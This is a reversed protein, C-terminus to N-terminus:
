RVNTDMVLTGKQSFINPLFRTNTTVSSTFLHENYSFENYTPTRQLQVRLCTNMTVSSTTLLHENYSFENYAPTWQLQVQKLSTTM